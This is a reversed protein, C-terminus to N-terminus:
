ILHHKRPNWHTSIFLGRWDLWQCRCVQQPFCLAVYHTFVIYSLGKWPRPHVSAEALCCSHPADPSEGNLIYASNLAKQKVMLINWFFTARDRVEDDTDLQSRHKKFLFFFLCSLDIHGVLNHWLHTCKICSLTAAQWGRCCSWSVQCCSM